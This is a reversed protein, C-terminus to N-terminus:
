TLYNFITSNLMGVGYFTNPIRQYNEVHTTKDEIISFTVIVWEPKVDGNDLDRLAAILVDRCSWIESGGKTKNAKVEGISVPYDSFDTM